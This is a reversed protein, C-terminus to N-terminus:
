WHYDYIRGSDITTTELTDLQLIKLERDLFNGNSDFIAVTFIIHESDPTWGIIEVVNEALTQAQVTQEQGNSLRSISSTPIAKLSSYEDFDQTWNGNWNESSAYERVALFESNPSWAMDILYGGVQEAQYVLATNNANLPSIRIATSGQQDLGSYDLHALWEENDAIITHGEKHFYIAGTQRDYVFYPVFDPEPGCWFPDGTIYRGSPSVAIGTSNIPEGIEQPLSFSDVIQKSVPDYVIVDVSEISSRPEEWFVCAGNEKTFYLNNDQDWGLINETAWGQKNGNPISQYTLKNLDVILFESYKRKFSVFEGSPSLKPEYFEGELGTKSGAGTLAFKESINPDYVWINEEKAYVIPLINKAMTETPTATPQDTKIAETEPAESTLPETKGPEPVVTFQPQHSCGSLTAVIVFFLIFIISKRM